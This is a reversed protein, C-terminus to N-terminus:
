SFDYHTYATPKDATGHICIHMFQDATDHSARGSHGFLKHCARLHGEQVTGANAHLPHSCGCFILYSPRGSYLTSTSDFQEQNLGETKKNRHLHVRSQTYTDVGMLVKQALRGIEM